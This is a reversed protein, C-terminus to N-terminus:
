EVGDLSRRYGTREDSDREAWLPRLAGIRDIEDFTCPCEIDTGMPTLRDCFYPMQRMRVRINRYFWTDREHAPRENM